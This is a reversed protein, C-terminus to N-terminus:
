VQMRTGKETPPNCLGKWQRAVLLETSTPLIYKEPETGPQDHAMLHNSTLLCSIGHCLLELLVVIPQILLSSLRTQPQEQLRPVM